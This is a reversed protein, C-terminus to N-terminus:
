ATIARWADRPVRLEMAVDPRRFNNVWPVAFLPSLALFILWTRARSPAWRFHAELACVAWHALFFAQASLLEAPRVGPLSSLPLTHLLGTAFFVALSALLPSLRLRDILPRFILRRCHDSICQNYRGGWFERMSQSAYPNTGALRKPAKGSLAFVLISEVCLVLSLAPYFVAMFLLADFVLPFQVGLDHELYGILMFVATLISGFTAFTKSAKLVMERTSIEETDLVDCMCFLCGVRPWLSSKTYVDHRNINETKAHGNIATRTQRRGSPWGFM